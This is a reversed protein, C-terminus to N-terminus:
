CWRTRQREYFYKNLVAVIGENDAGHLKIDYKPLNTTNDINIDKIVINLYEISNIKKLLHLHDNNKIAILMIVSFESELKIMRSEEVNGGCETIINSLDSVICPRDNGTATVIVKM